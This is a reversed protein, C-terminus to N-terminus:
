EFGEFEDDEFGGEKRNNEGDGDSCEAKLRSDELAGKARSRLTKTGGGSALAEVPRMVGGDMGSEWGDAALLGDVWVDLVHYRLGDGVKVDIPDMIGTGERKEGDIEGTMM